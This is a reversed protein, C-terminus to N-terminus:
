WPLFHGHSAIAPLQAVRAETVPGTLALDRLAEIGVRDVLQFGRSYETDRPWSALLERHAAIEETALLSAFEAVGEKLTQSLNAHWSEDRLYAHALEHAVFHGHDHLAAEALAITGDTLLAGYPGSISHPGSSSQPGSSSHPLYLSDHVEVEVPRPEVGLIAAVRPGHHQTVWAVFVLGREHPSRVTVLPHEAVLTPASCSALLLCLLRKM